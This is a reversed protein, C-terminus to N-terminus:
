IVKKMKEVDSIFWVWMTRNSWAEKRKDVPFDMIKENMQYTIIRCNPFKTKLIERAKVLDRCNILRKKILNSAEM